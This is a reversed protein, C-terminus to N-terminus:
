EFEFNRSEEVVTMEDYEGEDLTSTVVVYMYDHDDEDIDKYTVRVFIKVEYNGDDKDDENSTRVQVDEDEDRIEISVIWFDDEDIDLLKEIEKDFDSGETADLEVFDEALGGDIFNVVLGALTWEIEYFECGDTLECVKDLKETDIEPVEWEPLTIGAVIGNAIAQEDIDLGELQTNMIDLKNGINSNIVSGSVMLGALIVIAAIIVAWIVPTQNENM